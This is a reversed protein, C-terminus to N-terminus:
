NVKREAKALQQDKQDIRKRAEAAIEEQEKQLQEKEM